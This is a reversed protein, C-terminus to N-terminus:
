TATTVHVDASIVLQPEGDEGPAGSDVVSVRLVSVADTDYLWEVRADFPGTTAPTLYRVAASVTRAPVGRREAVAGSAAADILTTAVGGHLGGFGNTRDQGHPMRWVPDPGPVRSIELEVELPQVMRCEGDFMERFRARMAAMEPTPETPRAPMGPGMSKFVVEQTSAGVLTGTEDFLDVVVIGTRRGQRLARGKATLVGRAPGFRHVTIDAHVFPGMQARELGMGSAMDFLVGLAGFSVHGTSDVLAPGPRLEVGGPGGDDAQGVLLGIRGLVHTDRNMFPHHRPVEASSDPETM